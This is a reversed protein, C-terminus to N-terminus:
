YPNFISPAAGGPTAKPRPPKARVPTPEPLPEAATPVAEPAAPAEPEEATPAGPEEPQAEEPAPAGTAPATPLRWILQANTVWGKLDRKTSEVYAYGRELKVRSVKEHLALV